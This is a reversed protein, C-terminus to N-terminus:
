RRREADANEIGANVLPLNITIQSQSGAIGAVSSSVNYRKPPQKCIKIKVLLNFITNSFIAIFPQIQSPFFSLFGIQFLM